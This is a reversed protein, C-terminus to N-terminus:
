TKTDEHHSKFRPEQIMEVNLQPPNKIEVTTKMKNALRSNPSEEAETTKNELLAKMENKALVKAKEAQRQKVQKKIIFLNGSEEHQSNRRSPM